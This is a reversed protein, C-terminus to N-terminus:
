RMPVITILIQRGADAGRSLGDLGWLVQVLRHLRMNINHVFSRLKSNNLVARSLIMDLTYHWYIQSFYLSQKDQMFKGCSVCEPPNNKCWMLEGPQYYYNWTLLAKLEKSWYVLTKTFHTFDTFFQKQM